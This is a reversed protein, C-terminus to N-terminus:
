EPAVGRAADFWGHLLDVAARDGVVEAREDAPLAEGAVLPTFASAEVTVIATPEPAPEPLVRLPAGDAALVTWTGDGGIEYVVAFRHGITYEPEVAAALASLLLGPHVPSGAWGLDALTV